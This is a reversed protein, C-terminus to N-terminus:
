RRVGATFAGFTPGDHSWPRLVTLQLPGIPVPPARRLAGAGAPELRRAQQLHEDPSAQRDEPQDAAPRAIDSNSCGAVVSGVLELERPTLGLTPGMSEIAPTQRERMKHILDGVSERGVRDQGAAVMRIARYLLETASHKMVIGRAGSELVDVVEDESAHTAVILTNVPPDLQAIELLAELGAM